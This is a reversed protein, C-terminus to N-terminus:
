QPNAYPSQNMKRNFAFDSSWEQGPENAFPNPVLEGVAKFESFAAVLRDAAKKATSKDEKKAAREVQAAMEFIINRANTLEAQETRFGAYAGSLFLQFANKELVLFGPKKKDSSVVNLAKTWEGAEVLEPLQEVVTTLDMVRSGYIGRARVRTAPSVAGDALAISPVGAAAAALAAAVGVQLVTRRDVAGSEGNMMVVRSVAGSSCASRVAGCRVLGNGVFAAM